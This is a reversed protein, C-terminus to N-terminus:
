HAIKAKPKEAAETGHESAAEAADKVVENEKAV